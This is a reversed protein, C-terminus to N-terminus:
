LPQPFRGAQVPVVISEVVFVTGASEIASRALQVRHESKDDIGPVYHVGPPCHLGQLSGSDLRAGRHRIAM